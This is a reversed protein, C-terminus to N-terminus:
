SIESGSEENYGISYIKAVGTGGIRFRFHDCRKVNIPIDYSRLRESTKRYVEHYPEGDYSVEVYMQGEFAMRIMVKSIYKQLPSDLGLDGTEVIWDLHEVEETVKRLIVNSFERRWIPTDDYSSPAVGLTVIGWLAKGNAVNPTHFTDGSALSKYPRSIYDYDDETPTINEDVRFFSVFAVTRNLDNASYFLEYDSDPDLLMPFGIGIANTGSEREFWITGDEEVGGDCTDLDKWGETDIGVYFQDEDLTAFRNGKGPKISVSTETSTIADTVKLTAAYNRSKYHPYFDSMTTTITETLTISASGNIKYSAHNAGGVSSFGARFTVRVTAPITTYDGVINTIVAVPPQYTSVTITTPYLTERGRSDTISVYVNLEGSTRIADSKITFTTSDLNMETIQNGVSLKASVVTSGYAGSVTGVAKVYSVNTIYTNLPNNSGDSLTLSDFEPTVTIPVKVTFYVTSTGIKTGGSYTELDAQMTGQTDNPLENCVAMPLSYSNYTYESTTAPAISSSEWSWDGLSLKLIYTLDASQPTWKFTPANGIITDAVNDLDSSDSQWIATMTVPANTTYYGGTAYVRGDSGSWGKFTYGTKTLENAPIQLSEDYWKTLGTTYNGTGGNKDFTVAYSTKKPLTVSDTATMVTSPSYGYTFKCTKSIVQDKHTKTFTGVVVDNWWWDTKAWYYNTSNGYCGGSREEVGALNIWSGGWGDSNYTWAGGEAHLKASTPGNDTWWLRISSCAKHDGWQDSWTLYNSDAM